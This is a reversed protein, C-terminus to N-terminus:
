TSTQITQEETIEKLISAMGTHVRRLEEVIRTKKDVLGKLFEKIETLLQELANSELLKEILKHSITDLEMYDEIEDGNSIIKELIMIKNDRIALYYRKEEEDNKRIYFPNKSIYQLNTELSINGVFKHEQKHESKTEGCELCFPKDTLVFSIRRLIFYIEDDLYANRKDLSKIERLLDFNM